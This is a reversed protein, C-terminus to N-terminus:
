EGAGRKRWGPRNGLLRHYTSARSIARDEDKLWLNKWVETKSGDDNFLFGVAREVTVRDPASLGLAMAVLKWETGQAKHFHWLRKQDLRNLEAVFEPRDLLPPDKDPTSEVLAVMERCVQAFGKGLRVLEKWQARFDDLTTDPVPARKPEPEPAGRLVLRPQKAM